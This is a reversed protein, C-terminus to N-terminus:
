SFRARFRRPHLGLDSIPCKGREAPCIYRHCVKGLVEEESSGFVALAKPNISVVQHTAADVIMVGVDVSDLIKKLRVESERLAREAEQREQSRKPWNGTPKDSSTARRTFSTSIPKSPKLWPSSIALWHISKGPHVPLGTSPSPSGLLKEPLNATVHALKALSRTLRKSVAHSLLLALAILCAMIALNKVYITYLASQLPAVPAEATLKWPLEPGILTEQVYFSQKWRSMSPLKKDDPHWFYM